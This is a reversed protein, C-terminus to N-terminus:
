PRKRQRQSVPAARSRTMEMVNRPSAEPPVDSSLAASAGARRRADARHAQRHLHEAALPPLQRAAWSPRGDSAVVWRRRPTGSGRSPDLSTTGSRGSPACRRTGATPAWACWSECRRRSSPCRVSSGPRAPTANTPRRDAQQGAPRLPGCAVMRTDVLRQGDGAHESTESVALGVRHLSAFLWDGSRDGTFIRGTRNGGNAAPALGVVLVRPTASGWGAIPRGWYPEDAYAARKATAVGERWEVLRDCARCVSVAASLSPWTPRPPSGAYTTPSDRRGPDAPRGPRRALRHRTARPLSRRRRHGPAPAAPVVASM